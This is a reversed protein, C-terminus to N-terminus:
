LLESITKSGSLRCKMTWPTPCMGLQLTTRLCAAVDGAEARVQNPFLSKSPCSHLYSSTRPAQTWCSTDRYSSPCRCPCQCTIVRVRSDHGHGLPCGLSSAVGSGLPCATLAKVTRGAGAGGARTVMFFPKRGEQVLGCPDTLAAWSVEM